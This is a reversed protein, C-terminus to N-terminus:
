PQRPEGHRQRYDQIARQLEAQKEQLKEQQERSFARAQRWAVVMLVCGVCVILIALAMLVGGLAIHGTAIVAAGGILVVLGTPMTYGARRVTRTIAAPDAM